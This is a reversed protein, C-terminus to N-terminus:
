KNEYYDKKFKWIFGYAKKRLYYVIEGKRSKSKQPIGSCVGNIASNSYHLTREIENASSWEKIFNGELDLQIVAKSLAQAIKVGVSKHRKCGTNSLKMASVQKDWGTKFIPNLIGRKAVAYKEIQEKTLNKKGKLKVRRKEITEQSQKKGLNIDRLLQKTKETRKVGTSNGAIRCINYHPNLTDIYYQEKEILKSIECYEISELIFDITKINWARQLHINPHNGKNLRELHKRWRNKIDYSSGIYFQQNEPNIIKYIGAKM